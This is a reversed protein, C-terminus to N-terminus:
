YCFVRFLVSDLSHIVHKSSALNSSFLIDYEVYRCDLSIFKYQSKDKAEFYAESRTKYFNRLAMNLSYTDIMNSTSNYM